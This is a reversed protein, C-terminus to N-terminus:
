HQMDPPTVRQPLRNHASLQRVPGVNRIDGQEFAQAVTLLPQARQTDFQKPFLDRIPEFLSDTPRDPNHIARDDLLWTFGPALPPNKVADSQRTQYTVEELHRGRNAFAASLRQVAQRHPRM